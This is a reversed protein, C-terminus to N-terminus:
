LPISGSGFILLDGHIEAEDRRRIAREADAPTLPGPPEPQGAGVMELVSLAARLRIAPPTSPTLSERM